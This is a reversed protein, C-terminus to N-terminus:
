EERQRKRAKNERASKLGAEESVVYRSSSAKRTSALSPPCQHSVFGSPGALPDTCPQIQPDPRLLDLPALADHVQTPDLRGAELARARRAELVRAIPSELASAVPAELTRTLPTELARALPAELARALPTQLACVLPTELACALPTELARALRTELGHTLRTELMRALPNELARAVPDVLQASLIVALPSVLQAVLGSPASPEAMLQRVLREVIGDGLRQALADGLPRVLANSVPRVLGEVLRDELARALRDEITDAVRDALTTHLRAELDQLFTSSAGLLTEQVRAAVVEIHRDVEESPARSCIQSSPLVILQAPSPSSARETLSLAREAITHCARLDLLIQGYDVSQTLDGSLECAARASLSALDLLATIVEVIKGDGEIRGLSQSLRHAELLFDAELYERQTETLGDTHPTGPPTM